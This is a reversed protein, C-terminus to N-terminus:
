SLQIFGKFYFLLLATSGLTISTNESGVVKSVWDVAVRWWVENGGDPLFVSGIFPVLAGISLLDLISSLVILLVMLGLRSIKENLIFFYQKLYNM